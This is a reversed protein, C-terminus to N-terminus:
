GVMLSANDEANVQIQVIDANVQVQVIAVDTTQSNDPGLGFAGDKVRYQFYETANSGGLATYDPDTVDLSYVFSGDSKIALKGYLGQLETAAGDNVFKLVFDNRAATAFNEAGARAVALGGEPDIDNLLVNGVVETEGSLLKVSDGVADPKTNKGFIDISLYDFDTDGGNTSIKYSAKEVLKQGTMMANQVDKNNLDVTYTYAGNKSITFTGYEGAITAEGNAGTGSVREGNLFRLSLNDGAAGKIDNSLVNGSVTNGSGSIYLSNFDKVATPKAM